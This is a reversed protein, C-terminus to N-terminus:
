SKEPKEKEKNIKEFLRNIAESLEKFFDNKRLQIPTREERGEIHDNIKKTIAYIPGAIHNLLLVGLVFSILITFINFIVVGTVLSSYFNKIVDMVIKKTQPDLEQVEDVIKNKLLTSALVFFILNGIAAFTSIAAFFYQVQPNVIFKRRYFPVKM